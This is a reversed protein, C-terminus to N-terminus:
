DERKCKRVTRATRMQMGRFNLLLGFAIFSFLVCFPKELMGIIKKHAVDELNEIEERM